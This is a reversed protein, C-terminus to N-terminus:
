ELNLAELCYAGEYLHVDKVTVYNTAEAGEYAYVGIKIATTEEPVACTVAVKGNQPMVSSYKIELDDKNRCSVLPCLLTGDYSSIDFVATIAKGVYTAPDEVYTYLHWGKEGNPCIAKIGNQDIKEIDGSCNGDLDLIENNEGVPNEPMGFAPLIYNSLYETSKDAGIQSLHWADFFDTECNYSIEKELDIYKVGNEECIENLHVLKKLENVRSLYPARYFILEVGNEKCLDIIKQIYKVIDPELEMFDGDEITKQREAYDLVANFPNLRFGNRTLRSKMENFTSATNYPQTGEFSYDFDVTTLSEDTLRDKYRVMPINMTINDIDTIKVDEEPFEMNGFDKIVELKERSLKTGELNDGLYFGFVREHTSYTEYPQISWIEVLAVKPVHKKFQDVMRVYTTPIIEGANGYVFASIGTRAELYLPDFSTYSHCSGFVMVDHENDEPHDKLYQELIYYRNMSKPILVDSLGKILLAVILCFVICLVTRKIIVGHKKM